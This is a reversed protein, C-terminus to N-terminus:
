KKGEPAQHAVIQDKIKDYTAEEISMTEPKPDYSQLDVGWVSLRKNARSVSRTRTV